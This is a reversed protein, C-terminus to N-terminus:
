LYTLNVLGSLEKFQKLDYEDEIDSLKQIINEIAQNREQWKEPFKPLKKKLLINYLKKLEKEAEFLREDKSGKKLLGTIAEYLSQIRNRIISEQPHLKPSSSEFKIHNYLTTFKPSKLYSERIKILRQFANEIKESNRPDTQLDYVIEELEKKALALQQQEAASYKVAETPSLAQKLGGYLSRMGKMISLNDPKQINNQSLKDFGYKINYYNAVKIISNLSM